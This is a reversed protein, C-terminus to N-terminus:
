KTRQGEWINQSGESSAKWLNSKQEFKAMAPGQQQFSLIMVSINAEGLAIVDYCKRPTKTVMHHHAAFVGGWKQLGLAWSLAFNPLQLDEASQQNMLKCLFKSLPHFYSGRFIGALLIVALSVLINETAWKQITKWEYKGCFVLVTVPLEM